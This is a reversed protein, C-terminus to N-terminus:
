IWQYWRAGRATTQRCRNCYLRDHKGGRKIGGELMVVSGGLAVSVRHSSKGGTSTPIALQPIFPIRVLTVDVLPLAPRDMFHTKTSKLGKGVESVKKAYKVMKTRGGSALDLGRETQVCINLSIGTVAFGCEIRV